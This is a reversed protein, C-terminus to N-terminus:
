HVMSRTPKWALVRRRALDVQDPTMRAGAVNRLEILGKRNDLLPTQNAAISYWVFASSYDRAVGRGSFYLEALHFQARLDDGEAARQFWRAAETPDAAVGRGKQYADGVARQAAADGHVAAKRYWALAEADSQAVGFGFAYLQGMQFEAPAYGQAAARRFWGIAGTTDTGGYYLMAGLSFQAVVNGRDATVRAAALAQEVDDAPTQPPASPTTQTLIALTAVTSIFGAPM